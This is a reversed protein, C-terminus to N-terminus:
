QKKWLRYLVKELRRAEIEWPMDKYSMDANYLTDEYRHVPSEYDRLKGIAYQWVHVMEHGVTSIIDKEDHLNKNILITFHRPKIGVDHADYIGWAEDLDKFRLRIHVLGSLKKNKKFLHTRFLEIAKLSVRRRQVSTLESM